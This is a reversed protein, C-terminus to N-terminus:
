PLIRPKKLSGNGLQKPVMCCIWLWIGSLCARLADMIKKSIISRIGFSIFQLNEAKFDTGLM